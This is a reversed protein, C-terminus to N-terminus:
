IHRRKKMYIGLLGSAALLVAVVAFGTEYDGTNPSDTKNDSNDPEKDPTTDSLVLGDLASLLDAEAATVEAETAEANEFVASASALARNLTMVTDETYLNLDLANARNILAELVSKDPILRLDLIAKQLRNYADYVDRATAEEDALVAKADELAPIFDNKSSELYKNLDYTEAKEVLKKLAEKDVNTKLSDIANQLANYAADVEEQTADANAYVEEADALAKEFAAKVAPLVYKYQPDDQQEKAYNIAAELNHKNVEEQDFPSFVVVAEAYKSSDAASAARVTVSEATEDAAVTLCGNTDITTGVLGGTVSWVITDVPNNEGIVEADFQYSDGREVYVKEPTLKVESVGANVEVVATAYNGGDAKSVAKVILRTSTENESISLKGNEDIVTDSVGGKVSWKVDVNSTFAIVDGKEATKADPTIAVDDVHAADEEEWFFLDGQGGGLTFTLTYTTGEIHTLEVAETKGTERSVKKLNDALSTDPLEFTMTIEQATQESTGNTKAWEPDRNNAGATLTNVVMFYKPASCSFFQEEEPIPDFYGILVDGALGNNTTGTNKATMDQVYYTSNATFKPTYSINGITNSVANSGQMHQGQLVGVGSTRLHLLHQELNTIEGFANSGFEYLASPSGDENFFHGGNYAEQTYFSFLNMWKGGMAVTVFPMAYAESETRYRGDIEAVNVHQGFAIPERGTGDWGEMALKRYYGTNNILNASAQWDPGNDYVYADFTIYDPHANRIYSRMSDEGWQYGWQNTSVLTDPHKNRTLNFWETVGKELGKSYGEEDGMTVFYLKDEHMKQDDRLYDNAWDEESPGNALSGPNVGAIGNFTPAGSVGWFYNAIPGSMLAEDYTNHEEFFVASNLNMGMFQETSIHADARDRNGIDSGLPHDARKWTYPWAAIPLTDNKLMIRETRSVEDFQNVVLTMALIKMNSNEPLTISKIVKESSVNLTYADITGGMSLTIDESTRDAYEIHLASSGGLGLVRLSDYIGNFGTLEQGDCAAANQGETGELTFLAGDYVLNKEEFGEPLAVTANFAEDLGVATGALYANCQAAIEEASLAKGYVGIEDVLGCYFNNNAADCGVRYIDGGAWATNMEISAELNGNVYLKMEGSNEITLTLYYWTNAKVNTTSTLTKQVNVPEDYAYAEFKGSRIRLVHSFAEPIGNVTKVFITQDATSAPKAWLSVTFGNASGTAPLEMYGSKGDFKVGNNLIGSKWAASGYLTGNNGLGSTDSAMRDYKENLRWQGFVTSEGVEFYDIQVDSTGYDNVISVVNDKGPLLTINTEFLRFVGATSDFTLDAAKEGNIYLAKKASSGSNMAYRITLGKQGGEGGNVHNETMYAGSASLNEVFAGQSATTATSIRSGRGLDCYEAEYRPGDGNTIKGEVVASFKDLNIGTADEDECIIRVINNWGPNLTVSVTIENYTNWGYTRPFDIVMREGNIYLVKKTNDTDCAYRIVLDTNGGNAGGDFGAIECYAGLVHLDGVHASGSANAQNGRYTAGGGLIGNEAEYEVTREGEELDGGGNAPSVTFRKYNLGLSEDDGEQILRITNETGPKLTITIPELDAYTQWLWNDTAPFDVDMVKEGNVYLTRYVGPMGTSYNITLTFQGGSEGGNVNNLQVYAGKSHSNEIIDGTLAPEAGGNTNGRELDSAAYVATEVDPVDPTTSTPITLTFSGFSLGADTYSENYFRITNETGAKLEVEIKLDAYTQWYGSTDTVPFLVDKIYEDNVYLARTCNGMETIYRVTLTATGGEGGDVNDLQVSAGALHTDAIYTGRSADTQVNAGGSLTCDEPGYVITDSGAAFVMNPMITSFIMVVALLLALYRKKTINM